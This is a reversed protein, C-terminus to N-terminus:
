STFQPARALPQEERCFCTILIVCFTIGTKLSETAHWNFRPRNSRQLVNLQPAYLASTMPFPLQTLNRKFTLQNFSTESHNHQSNAMAPKFYSREEKASRVTSHRKVPQSHHTYGPYLWLVRLCMFSEVRPKLYVDAILHTRMHERLLYCVM